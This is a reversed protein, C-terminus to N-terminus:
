LDDPVETPDKREVNPGKAVRDNDLDDFDPYGTVVFFWDRGSEGRLLDRVGDNFVTVGCPAVLTEPPLDCDCPIECEAVLKAGGALDGSMINAIREDYPAKRCWEASLTALAADSVDNTAGDDYSTTGNILIDDNAGGRLQDTSLGGILIDNGADGYLYDAHAGGVLVDCGNGGYMKDQGDGGYM